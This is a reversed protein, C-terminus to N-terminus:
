TQLVKVAKELSELERQLDLRKRKVAPDEGAILELQDVDLSMVLDPNLMKVPSEKDHLLFHLIAQQCVVDVFRKRSVKYYSVLTDLLDERVQQGNDKDVARKGRLAEVPIYSNGDIDVTLTELSERVRESRKEQLNANFYHNFTSPLSKREILLLFHAQNMARRYANRLKDVLLSQWLQDRVQQEPCLIQLLRTIYDHVLTIAKSTHSLVIKQWKETQEEFLTAL